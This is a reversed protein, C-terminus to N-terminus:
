IIIKRSIHNFIYSIVNEIHLFFYIETRKEYATNMRFHLNFAVCLVNTICYGKSECVHPVLVILSSWWIRYHWVIKAAHNSRSHYRPWAYLNRSFAITGSGNIEVSYESLPDIKFYRTNDLHAIDLLWYWRLARRATKRGECRAGRIGCLWVRRM